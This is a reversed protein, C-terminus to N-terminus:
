ATIMQKQLANKYEIPFVKIFNRLQNEFDDLIFKAVTSKTYAYHKSIMEHLESSEESLVPELNTADANCNKHFMGKVDYVYAIGGSMGAAFNRGTDGLIVVRWRGYSVVPGLV